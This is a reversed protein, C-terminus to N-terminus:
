FATKRGEAILKSCRQAWERKKSVNALLPLMERGRRLMADCLTLSEGADFPLREDELLRILSAGGDPVASLKYLAAHIAGFIHTFGDDGIGKLHLCELLLLRALAEYDTAVFTSPFVGDFERYAPSDAKTKAVISDYTSRM